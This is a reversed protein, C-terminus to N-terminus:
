AVKGKMRSNDRWLRIHLANMGRFFLYANVNTAVYILARIRRSSLTMFPYPVTCRSAFLLSSLRELFDTFGLYSQSSLCLYECNGNFFSLFEVLSFYWTCFVVSLTPATTHVEDPGYSEEFLFFDALHTLLPVAHLAFDLNPAIFAPGESPPPAEPLALSPYSLM